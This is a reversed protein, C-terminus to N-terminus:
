KSLVQALRENIARKALDDVIVNGRIGSHGRTHQFEVRFKPKIVTAIYDRYAQSLPTNAKWFDKEGRQKTWNHIGAYDYNILLSDDPTLKLTGLCHECVALVAMVEGAVNKHKILDPDNAVKVISTWDSSGMPAIIAASAYFEVDGVKKYSGDVYAEYQM